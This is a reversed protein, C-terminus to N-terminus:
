LAFPSHDDRHMYEREVRPRPLASVAGLWVLFGMGQVGMVLTTPLWHLFIVGVTVWGVLVLGALFHLAEPISDFQCRLWKHM